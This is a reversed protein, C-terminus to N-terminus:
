FHSLGLFTIVTALQIFARVHVKLAIDKEFTVIQKHQCIM